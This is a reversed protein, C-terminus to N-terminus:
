STTAGSIKFIRFFNSSLISLIFCVIAMFDFAIRGSSGQNKLNLKNEQKKDIKKAERILEICKVRGCAIVNDNLDFVESYKELFSM